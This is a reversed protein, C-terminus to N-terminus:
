VFVLMRVEANLQRKAQETATVKAQLDAIEQQLQAVLADQPADDVVVAAQPLHVEYVIKEVKKFVFAVTDGHSLQVTSGKGVVEGNVCTGNSSLDTLLLHGQDSWLRCHTGSVYPRAIVAQPREGGSNNGAAATSPLRGIWLEPQLAIEHPVGAAGLAEEGGVQVLRGARHAM